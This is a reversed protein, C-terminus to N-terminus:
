LYGNNELWSKLAILKNYGNTIKAITYDPHLDIIKKVEAKRTSDDIIEEKILKFEDIARAVAKIDSFLRNGNGIIRAFDEFAKKTTATM